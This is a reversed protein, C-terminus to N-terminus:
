YTIKFSVVCIVPFFDWPILNKVIDHLADNTHQAKCIILVCCLNDVCAWDSQYRSFLFGPSCSVTFVTIKGMVKSLLQVALMCCLCSLFLFYYLSFFFFFCKRSLPHVLLLVDLFDMLIKWFVNIDTLVCVPIQQGDM